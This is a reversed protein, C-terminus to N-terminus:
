QKNRLPPYVSLTHSRSSPPPLAQSFKEFVTALM